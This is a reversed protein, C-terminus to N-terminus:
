GQGIRALAVVLGLAMAGAAVVPMLLGVRLGRMGPAFAAGAVAGLILAPLGFLGFFIVGWMAGNASYPVGGCPAWGNVFGLAAGVTTVILPAMVLGTVAGRIRTM